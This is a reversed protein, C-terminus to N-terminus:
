RNCDGSQLGGQPMAGLDGRAARLTRLNCHNATGSNCGFACGDAHLRCVADRHASGQLSCKGQGESVWFEHNRRTAVRVGGPALVRWAQRSDSLVLQIEKLAHVCAQADVAADSDVWIHTRDTEFRRPVSAIHRLSM